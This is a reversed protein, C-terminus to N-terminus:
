RSSHYNFRDEIEEMRASQNRTMKGSASQLSRRLREFHKAVDKTGDPSLCVWCLSDLNDMVEDWRRIGDFLSREYLGQFSEALSERDVGEAFVRGDPGCLHFLGGKSLLAVEGSLFEIEDWSPELLLAGSSDMLGKLGDRTVIYMGNLCDLTDDFAVGSNDPMPRDGTARVLALAENFMREGDTAKNRPPLGPILALLVALVAVAVLAVAWGAKSRRSRLAAKVEDASSYRGSPDDQLCRGSVDTRSPLLMSIVKGLSYIDSRVSAKGGAVVEPAAYGETGAPLHGRAMSPSDALSFDIVKVIGGSSTVMINEPKIDNHIVQKRHIYSLSDCLQTAIGLAMDGDLAGKDLLQRLTVGDVWELVICNGLRDVNRWSLYDCVGPHKLPHAIEYEHRLIAEYVEDGRFGDKLCKFVVIREGLLGKYLHYPGAPSEYILELDSASPAMTFADGIEKFYGSSKGM